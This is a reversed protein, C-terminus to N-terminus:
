QGLAPHRHEARQGPVCLRHRGGRRGRREHAVPLQRLDDNPFPFSFAPGEPGPNSNRAEGRHNFKLGQAKPQGSRSLAGLNDFSHNEMMVVVIHDFPLAENVTGAPVRPNPLRDPVRLKKASTSAMRLLGGASSMSAVAAGLSGGYRLLARRTLADHFRPPRDDM